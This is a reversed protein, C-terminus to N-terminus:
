IISSLPFSFFLKTFNSPFLLNLIGNLNKLKNENATKENSEKIEM